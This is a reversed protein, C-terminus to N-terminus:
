MRLEEAVRPSLEPHVNMDTMLTLAACAKAFRAVEPWPLEKLWGYVFGALLADGAGTVNIVNVTPADMWHAEMGNSYYFGYSGLSLVVQNVGARHFWNAVDPAQDRSALPLGSLKSAELRNPKLTHIRALWPDLRPCYHAGVTDVFIPQDGHHTLLWALTERSLTTNIVIAAANHLLETYRELWQPTILNTIAINGVTCCNEGSCDNVILYCGTAQGECIRTASLDVGAKQTVAALDRGNADDGLASILYTKCGLLALSEAINRPGGGPKYIVAPCPHPGNTRMSISSTASIDMNADGIIVAYRLDSKEAHM